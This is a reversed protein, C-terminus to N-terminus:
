NGFFNKVRSAYDRHHFSSSHGAGEVFWTEEISKAASRLRYSESHPIIADNTGHILFIPKSIEAIDAEPSFGEIDKGVYAFFWVRSINWATSALPGFYCFKTEIALNKVSSFSADVVLKDFIQYKAEARLTAAAGLSTSWAHVPRNPFHERAFDHAAKVDEGENVALTCTHGSSNGHGRFDFTVVHFNLNHFVETVFLFNQKNAGLGHTVVVVPRDPEDAPIAWASLKVGDATTLTHETYDMGFDAPTKSCGIKPPHLQVTALLFTGFVFVVFVLRITTTAFTKRQTEDGITRRLLTTLLFDVIQLGLLILVAALADFAFSALSYQGDLLNAIVLGRMGVFSVIAALLVLIPKWSFPKKSTRSQTAM